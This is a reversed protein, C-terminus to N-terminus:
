LGGVHAVLMRRDAESYLAPTDAQCPAVGEVHEAVNRRAANREAAGEQRPTTCFAMRTGSLFM